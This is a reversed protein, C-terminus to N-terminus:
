YINLFSFLFLLINLILNIINYKFINNNNNNNNYKLIM